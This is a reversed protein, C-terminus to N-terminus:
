CVVMKRMLRHVFMQLTVPHCRAMLVKIPNSNTLYNQSNVSVMRNRSQVCSLIVYLLGRAELHCRTVVLPQHVCESASADVGARLNVTCDKRPEERQEVAILPVPGASAQLFPVPCHNDALLSASHIDQM